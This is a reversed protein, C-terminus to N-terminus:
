PVAEEVAWLEVGDERSYAPFFVRSDARILEAAGPGTFTEPRLRFTGEPTGDSEWMSVEPVGATFLLHDGLVAFRQPAVIKMGDRDLLPGTGAETGDSVYLVLRSDEWAIYYFRGQFVAWQPFADFSPAVSRDDIKRTGAPTGDTVWLGQDPGSVLLRNGFAVLANPIFSGPGPELEVALKTGAATGDSSWLERGHEGDDAFFWLRDAHVTLLMPESPSLPDIDKVLVTGAETGDSRWLERGLEENWATFYLKGQFPTLDILESSFSGPAIDRVLRTGAPTGDSAWLEAGHDADRGPFFFTDGLASPRPIVCCARPGQDALPVTGEETGNTVWPIFESGGLVYFLLQGGAQASFEHGYDFHGSDLAKIRVTGPGTGDSRWLGPEGDAGEAFFVAQDGLAMLRRPRSGGVDTQNINRVLRTGSPGTGDARWLEEGEPGSAAFLLQGGAVVGPHFGDEPGFDSIRVTGSEQGDTAWLQVGSEGGTAGFLMRNGVLFPSAPDADCSGPCLDRVRRTGKITGDTAWVERGHAPDTATLLVLGRLAPEWIQDVGDCTGPCIDSLLRTGKATGDTVWAEVGHPGDNARFVIRNGQATHPLSLRHREDAGFFADPWPLNTLVRTGKATGDTVWLEQGKGDERDIVLYLRGGLVSADYLMLSAQGRAYDGILQTGKGTGDSSWLEWGQGPVPGLFVLRSGVARLWQPRENAWTSPDPDKVLVTGAATGDTKWLAGGAHGDDASFYVRGKFAVLSLLRCGEPGPRLDTVLHTGVFTGDSRWLELGHEDDEAGFYLVNRGALRLADTRVTVSPGTLPFTGSPTGDTAWLRSLGDADAALFFTARDTRAFFSPVGSCDPQCIDAVQWTGAATGDSRWLERGTLGDDAAFLAVPGLSAFDGPSSDAAESVPNIDKVLYPELGLAPLACLLCALLLATRM